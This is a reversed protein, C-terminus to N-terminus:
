KESEFTEMKNLPVKIVSPLYYKKSVDYFLVKCGLPGTYLIM